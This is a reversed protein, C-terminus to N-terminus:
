LIELYVSITMYKTLSFRLACISVCTCKGVHSYMCVYWIRSAEQLSCVCSVSSWCAKWEALRLSCLVDLPCVWESLESCQSLNLWCGDKVEVPLYFGSHNQKKQAFVTQHAWCDSFRVQWVSYTFIFHLAQTTNDFNLVFGPEIGARWSWVTRQM